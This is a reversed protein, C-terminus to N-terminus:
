ASSPMRSGRQDRPSPSTYLLCISGYLAQFVQNYDAFKFDPNKEDVKKWFECIDIMPDVTYTAALGINDRKHEFTQLTLSEIQVLRDGASSTISVSCSYTNSTCQLTVVNIKFEVESEIDSISSVNLSVRSFSNLVYTSDIDWAMACIHTACDLLVVIRAENSLRSDPCCLAAAGGGYISAQSIGQFLNLYNNGQESLRHYLVNSEITQQHDSTDIKLLFPVEDRKTVKTISGIKRGNGQDIVDQQGSSAAQWGLNNLSTDNIEILNDYSVSVLNASGKLEQVLM